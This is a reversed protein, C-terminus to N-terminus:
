MFSTKKEINAEVDDEGDDGGAENREKKQKKVENLEKRQATEQLRKAAKDQIRQPMTNCLQEYEPKIEIWIEESWVRSFLETGSM